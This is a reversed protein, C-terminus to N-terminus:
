SALHSYSELHSLLLALLDGKEGYIWWFYMWPVVGVFCRFAPLLDWVELFALKDGCFPIPYFIYPFFFNFPNLVSVQIELLSSHLLFLKWVTPFGKVPLFLAPLKLVEFSSAAISAQFDFHLSNVVSIM